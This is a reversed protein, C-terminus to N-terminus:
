PMIGSFKRTLMEAPIEFLNVVKSANFVIKIIHVVNRM